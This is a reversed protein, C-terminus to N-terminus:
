RGTLWSPEVLALFLFFVLNYLLPVVLKCFLGFYGLSLVWARFCGPSVCSLPVGTHTNNRGQDIFCSLQFFKERSVTVDEDPAEKCRMRTVTLSDVLM